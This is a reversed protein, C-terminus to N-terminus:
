EVGKAVGTDAVIDWTLEEFRAHSADIEDALEQCYLYVFHLHNPTSLVSLVFPCDSCDPTAVLLIHNSPANRRVELQSALEQNTSKLQKAAIRKVAAMNKYKLLRYESLAFLFTTHMFWNSTTLDM